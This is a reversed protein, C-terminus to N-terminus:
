VCNKCPLKLLGEWRICNNLLGELRICTNLLGEWRICNNLLEAWRVTKSYGREDLVTISCGRWDSAIISYGRGDLETNPTARSIYSVGGIFHHFSAMCLKRKCKQQSTCHHDITYLRTNALAIQTVGRSKLQHDILSTVGM